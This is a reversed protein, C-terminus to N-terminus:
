KGAAKPPAAAPGAAAPAPLHKEVIKPVDEPKVGKYFVNEPFVAVIPGESCCDMCHVQSVRVLPKLGHAKVYANLAARVEKGGGAACCAKGPERENVCVYIIKKYPPRFEQM